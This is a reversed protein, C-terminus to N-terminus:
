RHRPRALRGCSALKATTFDLPFIDSRAVRSLEPNKETAERKRPPSASVIYEGKPLGRVKYRGQDDTRMSLGIFDNGKSM